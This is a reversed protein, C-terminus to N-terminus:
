RRSSRTASRPGPHAAVGFFHGGPGVEAIAEVALADDDVVLPDLFAAVMQLLDADLVM